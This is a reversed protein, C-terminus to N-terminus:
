GAIVPLKEEQQADLLGGTPKDWPSAVDMREAMKQLDAHVRFVDNQAEVLKRQASLARMVIEQGASTALEPNGRTNLMAQLAKAMNANAEDILAETERIPGGIRVAEERMYNDAM